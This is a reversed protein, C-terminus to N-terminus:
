SPPAPATCPPSTHWAAAAGEDEGERREVVPAERRLKAPSPNKERDLITPPTVALMRCFSRIPRRLPGPAAAMLAVLAPDRLLHDLQGAYQAPEPLLKRLWGFETPLPNPRRPKQATPRRRSPYRRPFYTGAAVRDAIRRFRQQIASLRNFILHFLPRPFPGFM